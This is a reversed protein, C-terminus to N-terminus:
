AEFGAHAFDWDCGLDLRGAFAAGVRNGVDGGCLDCGEIGCACACTKEAWVVDVAGTNAVNKEHALFGTVREGSYSDVDLM